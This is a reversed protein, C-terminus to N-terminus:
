YYKKFIMKQKFGSVLPKLLANLFIEYISICREVQDSKNTFNENNM